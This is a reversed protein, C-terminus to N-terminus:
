AFRGSGGRGWKQADEPPLWEPLLEAEIEAKTKMPLPKSEM